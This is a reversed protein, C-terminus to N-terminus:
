PLLVLKGVSHGSLAQRHAYAADDLPYTSLVFVRL